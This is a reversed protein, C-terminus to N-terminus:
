SPRHFLVAKMLNMEPIKQNKYVDTWVVVPGRRGVGFM